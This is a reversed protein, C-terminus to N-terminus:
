FNGVKNDKIAVYQETHYDMMFGGLNDLIMRFFGKKEMQEEEEEEPM